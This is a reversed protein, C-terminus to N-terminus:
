QGSHRDLLSLGPLGGVTLFQGYEESESVELTVTDQAAVAQAAIIAAASVITRLM